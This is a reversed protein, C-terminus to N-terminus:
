CMVLRIPFYKPTDKKAEEFRTFKNGQPEVIWIQRKEDVMFNFAHTDSWVIGFAVTGVIRRWFGMLAYSFDECDYAESLWTAMQPRHHTDSFKKASIMDTVGFNRDGLHLDLTKGPTKFATYLLMNLEKINITGLKPPYFPPQMKFLNAIWEYFGM